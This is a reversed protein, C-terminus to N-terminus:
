NDFLAMKYGRKSLRSLLEEREAPDPILTLLALKAEDTDFYVLAHAIFNATASSFRQCARIIKSVQDMAQLRALGLACVSVVTPNPSDLGKVLWPILRSDAAEAMARALRADGYLGQTKAREIEAPTKTKRWAEFQSNLKETYNPLGPDPYPMDNEIAPRVTAILYDFYKRDPHRFHVLATAIFLKTDAETELPFARVLFNMASADGLEIIRQIAVLNYPPPGTLYRRSLEPTKMAYFKDIEDQGVQAFALFPILMALSFAAARQIRPTNAQNILL